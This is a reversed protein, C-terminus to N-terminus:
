SSAAAPVLRQGIGALLDGFWPQSVDFAKGGAIRPFAIATLRDGDEEDHGIVGAEGRLACEVALDTMSKILALDEANAAAARSYYGSKQVMVKEAGLKEAFQKAFWQGPNITDLRVHGFPDRPVEEGAAELQEVIEHMGAGESLFINVNGIEDMVGRLRQAEAEVDLALEPLFVAHVDWREKSLGINPLWEQTDLWRRYEAAAAATLWGCHRGMVEHVILMRPGSRHEGIINQAFGAAEEAATWAGLSQKIPIIDNDITKPLGVVTLEYGNEHLYAALDAATTNTDDGGITHLVDVGDAKLREAAVQLPDQGEEVLGRKVLDKANTLKVRSNGIPSGGFRHLLGAKARTEDDVVVLNGTLLGHYGHQYAIIEIEPAIETYREILGGVASSLCPAFGGATLLAVRRVSM